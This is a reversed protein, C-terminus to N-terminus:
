ESTPGSALPRTEAAVAHTAGTPSALQNTGAADLLRQRNTHAATTWKSEGDYFLIVAYAENDLPDSLWAAFLGDKLEGPSVGIQECLARVGIWEGARRHNLLARPFAENKKLTVLDTCTNLLEIEEDLM